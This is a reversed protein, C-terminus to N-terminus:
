RGQILAAFVTDEREAYRLLTHHLPPLIAVAGDIMAKRCPTIWDRYLDSLIQREDPQGQFVTRRGRRDSLM